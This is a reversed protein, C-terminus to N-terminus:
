QKLLNWVFKYVITLFLLILGFLFLKDKSGDVQSTTNSAEGNTDVFNSDHVFGESIVLNDKMNKNVQKWNKEADILEGVMSFKTTSTIKVRVEKGLLNDSMPLLVQEYFKNHGVYHKKDTSIETVLVM